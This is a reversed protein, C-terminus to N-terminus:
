SPFREIRFYIAPENRKKELDYTDFALTSLIIFSSLLYFFFDHRVIASKPGNHSGSMGLLVRYFLRESSATRTHSILPPRLSDMSPGSPSLPRGHYAM